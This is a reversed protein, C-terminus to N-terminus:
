IHILSLLLSKGSLVSFQIRAYDLYRDIAESGTPLDANVPSTPDFTTRMPPLTERLVPTEHARALRAIALPDQQAFPGVFDCAEILARRGRHLRKLASVEDVPRMAGTNVLDIAQASRQLSEWISTEASAFASCDYELQAQQLLGSAIEFQSSATQTALYVSSNLSNSPVQNSILEARKRSAGALKTQFSSPSGLSSQPSPLPVPLRQPRASTIPMLAASANMSESTSAVGRDSVRQSIPAAALNTNTAAEVDSVGVGTEDWQPGVFVSGIPSSAVKVKPVQLRVKAVPQTHSRKVSNTPNTAIQQASHVFPNSRQVSPAGLRLEEATAGGILTLAIASVGVIRAALRASCPILTANNLASELSSPMLSSESSCFSRSVGITHHTSDQFGFFPGIIEDAGRM